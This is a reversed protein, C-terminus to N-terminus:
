SPDGLRLEVLPLPTNTETVETGLTEELVAKFRAWLRPNRDVYAALTDDAERQDLVRAVAPARFRSGAYVRVRPHAQINRYWQAKARFGSAVLYRGPGPRDIVELVAYRRAGSTRGVHELMLLRPGLLLGLHMRYLWIPARVLRRSRLLRSAVGVGPSPSASM